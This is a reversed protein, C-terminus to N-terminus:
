LIVYFHEMKSDPKKPNQGGTEFSKFEKIAIEKISKFSEQRASSRQSRRLNLWGRTDAACIDM